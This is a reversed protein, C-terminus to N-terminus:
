FRATDVFELPVFVPTRHGAHALLDAAGIQRAGRLLQPRHQARNLGIRVMGRLRRPAASVIAISALRASPEPSHGSVLSAPRGRVRRLHACRTQVLYAAGSRNRDTVPSRAGTTGSRGTSSRSGPM